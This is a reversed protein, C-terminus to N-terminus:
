NVDVATLWIRDRAAPTANATPESIRMRETASRLVDKDGIVKMPPTQKRAATPLWTLLVM